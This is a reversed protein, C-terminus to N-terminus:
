VSLMKKIRNKIHRAIMYTNTIKLIFKVSMNWVIRILLLPKKKEIAQLLMVRDAFISLTAADNEYDYLPAYRNNLWYDDQIFRKTKSYIELGTGPFLQTIGVIVDTPKCKKLVTLTEKVTSASEGQNGVM